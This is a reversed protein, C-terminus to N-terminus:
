AILYVSTDRMSFYIFKQLGGTNVIQGGYLAVLGTDAREAGCVDELAFQVDLGALGLRHGLLQGGVRLALYAGELVAHPQANSGFQHLIVAHLGLLGHQILVGVQAGHVVLVVGVGLHQVQLVGDGGEAGEGCSGLDVFELVLAFFAEWGLRHSDGARVPLTKADIKQSCTTM